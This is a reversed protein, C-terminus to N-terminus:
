WFIILDFSIIIFNTLNEQTRFVQNSHFYSNNDGNKVSVSIKGEILMKVKIM